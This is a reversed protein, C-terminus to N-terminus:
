MGLRQSMRIRGGIGPLWMNGNMKKASQAERRRHGGVKGQGMKGEMGRGKGESLDSGRM